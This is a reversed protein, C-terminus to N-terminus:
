RGNSQVVAKVIDAVAQCQARQGKDGSWRGKQEPYPTGRDAAFKRPTRIFEAIAAWVEDSLDKPDYEAGAAAAIFLALQKYKDVSLGPIKALAWGFWSAFLDFEEVLAGTYAPLGASERTRDTHRLQACFIDLAEETTGRFTLNLHKLSDPRSLLADLNSRYRAVLYWLFMESPTQGKAKARGEWWGMWETWIEPHADWPNDIERNSAAKLMRAASPSNHPPAYIGAVRIFTISESDSYYSLRIDQATLPTGGENIRRFIELKVAQEMSKPLYIITLPYEDFVRKLRMDLDTYYKGRYHVSQPTIYVMGEDDSIAFGGDRFKEITNLRQQGDVVEAPGDTSDAFFFAPVTLNNIISEIFLSEKRVDWQEADRQYDPVVVSGSKLRNYITEISESGSRTQDTVLPLNGLDVPPAKAM